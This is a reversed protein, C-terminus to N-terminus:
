KLDAPNEASFLARRKKGKELLVYTSKLEPLNYNPSLPLELLLAAAHTIPATTYIRASPWSGSIHSNAQKQVSSGTVNWTRICARGFLMIRACVAKGTLFDPEAGAGARAAIYRQLSDVPWCLPVFSSNLEMAGMAQSLSLRDHSLGWTLCPFSEGSGTSSLFSCRELAPPASTPLAHRSPFLLLISGFEWSSRVEWTLHHKGGNM